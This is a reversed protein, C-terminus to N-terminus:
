CRPIDDLQSLRADALSMESARTGKYVPFRLQGDKTVNLCEIECLVPVGADMQAKLEAIETADFGTGVRGIRVPQGNGDLLALHMAGFHARAGEGPDYGIGIATISRVTKFKIWDAFRGSRYTSRLRKAIVGELGLAKVQEFYAPDQSVVSTTWPGTFLGGLGDLMMRRDFYPQLRCDSGDIELVDFAVFNVPIERMTRVVDAPKTQKDRKATDQFSGSCAVIEGDLVCPPLDPFGAELDPYRHTIDKMSRNLLVLSQGDWYAVARIGDLKLDFWYTGALSSLRQSKPPSALMPKVPALM